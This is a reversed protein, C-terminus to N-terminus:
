ICIDNNSHNLGMEYDCSLYIPWDNINSKLGFILSHENFNTAFGISPFLITIQNIDTSFLTLDISGKFSIINLGIKPEFEIKNETPILEKSEDIIEKINEIIKITKIVEKQIDEKEIDQVNKTTIIEIINEIDKKTQEVKEIIKKTKEIKPVILDQVQQIKEDIRAIQEVIEIIKEQNQIEKYKIPEEDTKDYILM